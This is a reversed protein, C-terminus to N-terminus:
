PKSLKHERLLELTKKLELELNKCGSIDVMTFLCKSMDKCLQADVHVYMSKDVKDTKHILILECSEKENLRFCRELLKNFTSLSDHSIHLGFRTNNLQSRNKGLMAAASYNLELIDGEKSLTLYGSPAYDYLEVYKQIAEYAQQHATKLEENQMELEIQHVQLEHILKRTDFESIDALSPIDNKLEEEAILRLLTAENVGKEQNKM